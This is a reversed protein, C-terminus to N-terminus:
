IAQPCNKTSFYRVKPVWIDWFKLRPVQKKVISKTADLFKLHTHTCYTQQIYLYANAETVTNPKLLLVLIYWRMDTEIKKKQELSSNQLGFAGTEFWVSL